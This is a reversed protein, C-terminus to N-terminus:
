ENCKGRLLGICYLEILYFQSLKKQIFKGRNRLIKVPIVTSCDARSKLASVLEKYTNNELCGMVHKESVFGINYVCHECELVSKDIRIQKAAICLPCYMTSINNNDVIDIKTQRKATQYYNLLKALAKYNYM